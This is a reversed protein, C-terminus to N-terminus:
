RVYPRYTKCLDHYITCLKAGRVYEKVQFRENTRVESEEFWQAAKVEKGGDHFQM